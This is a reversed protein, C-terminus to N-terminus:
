SQMNEKVPQPNGAHQGCLACIHLRSLPAESSIKKARHLNTKCGHCGVQAIRAERQAAASLVWFCLMNHILQQSAQSVTQPPASLDYCFTPYWWILPIGEKPFLKSSINFCCIAKYQRWFHLIWPYKCLSSSNAQLLNFSYNTIKLIPNEM